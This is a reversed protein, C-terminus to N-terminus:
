RLEFVEFTAVNTTGGGRAVAQVANLWRYAPASTEFRPTLYTAGGSGYTRADARGFTQMYIVAGDHTEFLVRIDLTVISEPGVVLWDGATKGRQRARVREGEWTVNALEVVVRRGAPTDAMSVHDVTEFTMIGLPVLDIV